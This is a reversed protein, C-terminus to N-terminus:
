RRVSSPINVLRDEIWETNNLDAYMCDKFMEIRHMPKWVPRTMVGNSNTDRLFKDRQIRDKLLIANLWYNSFSDAPETVFQLDTSKFFIRGNGM